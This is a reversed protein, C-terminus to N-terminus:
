NLYGDGYSWAQEQANDQTQNGSSQPAPIWPSLFGWVRDGITTIVTLPDPTAGPGAVAPASPEDALAPAPRMLYYGAFLLILLTETKM